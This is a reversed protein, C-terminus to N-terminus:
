QQPGTVDRLSILDAPKGEYTIVKGISEVFVDRGKLSILHYRAAYADHGRAVEGFDKVVDARSEPAIVEMVNRGILDEGNEADVTRAAANNCFLVKGQMDTIMIAELAHDVLSRFKVESEKLADEAQKRRTIDRIIGAVGAPTGDPHFIRNASLSVPTETGDQKQLLVEYDRVYGNKVLENLLVQRDEPNVYIKTISSGILEKETWGTLRNLSPSLITIIGNTDTQYYLDEFSEFIRRYREESERLAAEARKRETIDRITGFYAKISGNSNKQAVISILTDFDRGDRRRFTIPYEKLYGERNVLDIFTKREEPHAYTSITDVAMAEERSKCGLRQFLNDNFDIYRGNSGTIFVSDQSTKFFLRYQEESEKLADETSKKESVDRITGIFAKTSGDPNKQLAATMLTHIPSGDRRRMQVPYERVYGDREVQKIFLDREEPQMYVSTIPVGFLTERDPYGLLDVIAENFDIWDGKLTTIFLGDLTTRFFQRYREESEKLADETRKKESVDRLTGLFRGTSGDPNKWAVVTMLADFTTGDRRRYKLPYEKVYGERVARHVISERDKPDTYYDRLPISFVEERNRCGFMGIVADNFDIWDGELTTIFLGDLTTRFVQRYREESEKLADVAKKIETIDRITGTIAKTSGDPNKLPVSTVVADFITGDLKKLQLPAEKIFGIGEIKRFLPAREEPNVYFSHVNKQAIEERSSGGFMKVTADNFDIWDGAPSTIFVCDLTTKFFQRYREESEKLADEALKRDTIDTVYNLTAPAGKWDIIVVSLEVWRLPGDKRSIRYSYRSPVTEGSIRKRFRDILMDFDDPHVFNKFPQSLLEQETYGCMETTRSNVMQLKGDQVVYIGEGAHEILHRYREGSEKLADEALKRDTIDIMFNLTAPREDWTIAVVNLEVWRITTDKCITRFTYHTPVTAAVDRNRFKDLLMDGEDPHVFRVFPQNLLEQESYGSLEAARPNIMRFREDQIIFIGEGAHEILNRYDQESKKLALGARKQSIAHLIKHALETFQSVPEGGKQLYFDAGSNLAEIVVDERGRGTFIIFPTTDGQARLTKLFAIGDMKPMQYDSVIADYKLSSLRALAELASHSTDVTFSGDEELFVKGIDLLAPEDDVYLIRNIAPSGTNSTM